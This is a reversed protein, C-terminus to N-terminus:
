CSVRICNRAEPNWELAMDDVSRVSNTLGVWPGNWWPSRELDHALIIVHLIYCYMITVVRNHRLYQIRGSVISIWNILFSGLSAIFRPCLAIDIHVSVVSFPVMSGLFPGHVEQKTSIWRTRELGWKDKVRTTIPLTWGVPPRALLLPRRMRVLSHGTLPM